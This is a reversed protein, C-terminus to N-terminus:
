PGDRPAIHSRDAREHCGGQDPVLREVPRRRRCRSDRVTREGSGDIARALIDRMAMAVGELVSWLFDDAGHERALGEFAGRVDARWLPAREGALYPLFLPRAAPPLMKGAREVAAALTGRVRFTRHAGRRATPARRPRAASRRMRRAGSCRFSARCTRCAGAHHARGSGIHGRHRLRPRRSRGAGVATAWADMAGAFVPIGELRNWPARRNTIRGLMQWPAVRRLALLDLCRELWDPLPAEAARLDDYRSYTVSDAAIVGTLRYNLFDKPELVAGVRNSREPQRRAFWAIRALPHFATIEDAPNDAPFYRAVEAADDVARQDRFLFAPALPRGERDLLSRRERSAPYACAACAIASRCSTSPGASTRALARWWVEPDVVRLGPNPEDARIAASTTAVVTGKATVAGVRM